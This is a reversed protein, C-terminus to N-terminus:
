QNSCNSNISEIKIPNEIKIPEKKPQTFLVAACLLIGIVAAMLNATKFSNYAHILNAGKFNNTKANQKSAYLLDNIEEVLFEEESKNQLNIVNAPISRSYIYKGINLNKAGNHITLLYFLFALVLFSVISIKWGLGDIKDIVLPIFLSLLAFIVGTQAVIQSSKSELVTLRSNEDAEISKLFDRHLKLKEKNTGPINPYGLNQAESPTLATNTSSFFSKLGRNTFFDNFKGMSKV